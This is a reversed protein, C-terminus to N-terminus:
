AAVSTATPLASLAAFLRDWLAQACNDSRFRPAGATAKAQLAPLNRVATAVAEAMSAGTWQAAPVVGLQYERGQRAPVTSNSVVVVKGASAAETFVGSSGHGYFSPSYPLLVIDAEALLAFYDTASLAGSVLKVDDASMKELRELMPTMGTAAAADRNQVQVIFRPKPSLAACREIVEPLFQFGRLPSTHGQYVVVPRASIARAASSVLLDSVDMPNALEIVPFGIMKQYAAALERTDACILSRPQIARLERAAYRYYLAILEKNARAQVYDMAHNLYRLMVAIVPRNEVPLRALWLSVAYLQNQLLNPFYVLDDRGFKEPPLRSLDVLFAQNVAQFNEIPWVHADRAAEQFIDNSFVPEPTLGCCQVSCGIRGYITTAVGRRQLERVLQADHNLYHGGQGQLKPDFIHVHRM